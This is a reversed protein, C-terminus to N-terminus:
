LLYSINIFKHTKTTFIDWNFMKHIKQQFKQQM